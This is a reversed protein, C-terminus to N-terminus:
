EDFARRQQGRDFLLEEAPAIREKQEVARQLQPLLETETGQALVGDSSAALPHDLMELRGVTEARDIRGHLVGDHREIHKAIRRM